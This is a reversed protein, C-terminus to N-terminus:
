SSLQLDERNEVLFVSMTLFGQSLGRILNKSPITEIVKSTHFIKSNYSM